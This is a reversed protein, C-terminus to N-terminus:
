RDGVKLAAEGRGAIDSIAPQRHREVEGNAQPISQARLRDATESPVLGPLQLM